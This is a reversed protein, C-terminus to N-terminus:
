RMIVSWQGRCKTPCLTSSGTILILSAHRQELSLLGLVLIRRYPLVDRRVDRPATRRDPSDPTIMRQSQCCPAPFPHQQSSAPAAPPFWLRAAIGVLSSQVIPDTTLKRLTEGTHPQERELKRDHDDTRYRTAIM